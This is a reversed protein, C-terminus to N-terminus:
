FLSEDYIILVMIKFSPWLGTNPHLMREVMSEFSLHVAPTYHPGSHIRRFVCRKCKITNVTILSEHIREWTGKFAWSRVSCSAKSSADYAWISHAACSVYYYHQINYASITFMESIFVYTFIINHYTIPLGM